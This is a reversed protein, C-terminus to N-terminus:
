AHRINRIKGRPWMRWMGFFIQIWIFKFVNSWISIVQVACERDPWQPLIKGMIRLYMIYIISLIKYLNGNNTSQATLSFCQGTISFQLQTIISLWLFCAELSSVNECCRRRGILFGSEFDLWFGLLLLSDVLACRGLM